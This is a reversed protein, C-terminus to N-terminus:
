ILPTEVLCCNGCSPSLNKGIPFSRGIKDLVNQLYKEINLSTWSLTTLGPQMADDVKALHLTMLTQLPAPIKSKM